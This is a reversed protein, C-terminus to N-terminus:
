RNISLHILSNELAVYTRHLMKYAKGNLESALSFRLMLDYLNNVIAIKDIQDDM